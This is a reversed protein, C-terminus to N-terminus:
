AYGGVRSSADSGDGLLSCRRRAWRPRLCPHAPSCSHLYRCHSQSGPRPERHTVTNERGSLLPSSRHTSSPPMYRSVSLTVTCPQLGRFFATSVSSVPSCPCSAQAAPSKSSSSSPSRPPVGSSTKQQPRRTTRLCPTSTLRSTPPDTPRDDVSTGPSAARPVSKTVNELM